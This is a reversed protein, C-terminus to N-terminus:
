AYRLSVHRLTLCCWFLTFIISLDLQVLVIIIIIIIIIIVVLVPDFEIIVINNDHLLLFINVLDSSLFISFFVLVSHTHTHTHTHTLFHTFSTDM